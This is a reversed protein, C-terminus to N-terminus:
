DVAAVLDVEVPANLPLAAIGIAARAPRGNEGFVAVLLETAGNAVEHQRDFGASSAVYVGVRVIRRVRDVSGLTAGLASLAQLAARRAVEYAAEPAVDRDVLGPRVVQGGEMVVQGSVWALGGHVVVPVYTGAPRPPPPLELGLERLRESPSPTM